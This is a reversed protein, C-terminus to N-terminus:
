LMVTVCFSLLLLTTRQWALHYPRLYKQIKKKELDYCSLSRGPCINDKLIMQSRCCKVSGAPAWYIPVLLTRPPRLWGSYLRGQRSWGGVVCTQFTELWSAKKKKNSSQLPATSLFISYSYYTETFLLAKETGKEWWPPSTSLNHNKHNGISRVREVEAGSIYVHTHTKM